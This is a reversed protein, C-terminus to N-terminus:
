SPIVDLMDQYQQWHPRGFKLVDKNEFQDMSVDFLKELRSTSCFQKLGSLFLLPGTGLAVEEGILGLLSLLSKLCEGSRM